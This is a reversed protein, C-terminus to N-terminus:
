WVNHLMPMQWPGVPYPTSASVPPLPFYSSSHSSQLAPNTVVNQYTAQGKSILEEMKDAKVHRLHMLKRKNIFQELFEDVDIERSLFKEVIAQFFLYYSQSAEM